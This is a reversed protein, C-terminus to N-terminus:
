APPEVTHDAAELASVAETLSSEKVLVYDTDYTSVAFIGVGAAALPAAISLLIGTLSFDLPGAVKFARWGADMNVGAPVLAEECVVSTEDATLSVSCFSGSFSWPPPQTGSPLRCVSLRVPLVSLKLPM